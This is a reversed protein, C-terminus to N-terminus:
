VGVATLAAAGTNTINIFAATSGLPYEPSPVNAGIAYPGDMNQGGDQGVLVTVAQAADSRFVRFTKAFPPVQVFAGPAGPALGGAPNFAAWRTLTVPASGPRNGVGITAGAFPGVQSNVGLTADGARPKVSADNRIQLELYDGVVTLLTGGAQTAVLSNIPVDFEASQEGSNGSGWKAIGVLPGFGQGALVGAAGSNGFAYISATLVEPDIVMLGARRNDSQFKVLSVLAGRGTPAIGTGVTPNAPVIQAPGGVRGPDLGSMLGTPMDDCGIGSASLLALVGLLTTKM